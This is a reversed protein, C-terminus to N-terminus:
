STVLIKVSIEYDENFEMGKFQYFTPRLWNQTCILAEAMESKLSSRYVELVRESTSFASESAVTSVPTPMIDRVIQSLVPYQGANHKWWCLIDFKEKDKENFTLCKGAIYSQLETEEEVSDISMLHEQFANERAIYTPLEDSAATEGHSVAAAVSTVSGGAIDHAQKYLDFMKSLNDNIDKLVSKKTDSDKGYMDDFCWEVYRLKYRSDFIIVFYLLQNMKTIDVWYKCFKELMDRAVNAFLGNLDMNLKKLEIYIETLFPFATHLSAKTSVSFVKTAEYYKKLFKIFVRVNDWDQSSPPSDGDFLDRYDEDGDELKDFATQFKEAADLMLYTSNWRTSVDLCVSKKCTIGVYEVCEKFKLARHLSSRVFRIANRVSSISTSAVKLGDRVVLNLIHACCRMHFGFGDMLLGNM